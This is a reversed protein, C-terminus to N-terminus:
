GERGAGHAHINDNTQNLVYKLKKNVRTSISSDFIFSSVSGSVCM